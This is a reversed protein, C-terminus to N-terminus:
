RAVGAHPGRGQGEDTPCVTEGPIFIVQDLPEEYECSGPVRETPLNVRRVTEQTGFVIAPETQISTSPVFGFSPAVFTYSRGPHFTGARPFGPAHDVFDAEHNLMWSHSWQQ